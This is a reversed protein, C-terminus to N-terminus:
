GDWGEGSKEPAPWGTFPVLLLAIPVLCWALATLAYHLLRTRM